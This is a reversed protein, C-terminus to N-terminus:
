FISLLESENLETQGDEYLTTLRRADVCDFTLFASSWSWPRRRVAVVWYYMMAQVVRGGRGCICGNRFVVESM